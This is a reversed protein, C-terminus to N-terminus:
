RVYNLPCFLFDSVQDALGVTFAYHVNPVNRPQVHSRESHFQRGTLVGPDLDVTEIHKGVFHASSLDGRNGASVRHSRFCRSRLGSAWAASPMCRGNSDTARGVVVVAASGDQWHAPTPHGNLTETGKEDPRRRQGGNIQLIM